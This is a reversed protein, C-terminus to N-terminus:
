RNKYLLEFDKFKKLFSGIESWLLNLRKQLVRTFTKYCGFTQVNQSIKSKWNSEVAFKIGRAMKLFKLNKKPFVMKEQLFGM